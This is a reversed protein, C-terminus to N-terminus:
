RVTIPIHKTVSTYTTRDPGCFDYITAVYYYEGAPITPPVIRPVVFKNEGLHEKQTPVVTKSVEENDKTRILSWHVEGPCILNINTTVHVNFSRGPLLVTPEIFISALLRPRTVDAKNSFLTYSVFASAAIVLGALAIDFIVRIVPHDPTFIRMM